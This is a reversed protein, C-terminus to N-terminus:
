VVLSLLKNPVYITKRIPKGALATSVKEDAMASAVVAEQTSDTPLELQARLKGNVQVVVIMTDSKLYQEDFAPWQSIHISEDHGLQSWLEESIHPAFPAVMQLLSELAFQWASKNAYQDQDKIRYLENVMEMMSAIATNFSLRELDTSVKQITRHTIKRLDQEHSKQESQEKSGQYEQVLTWVRNL